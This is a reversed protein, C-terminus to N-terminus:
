FHEAPLASVPSADTDYTAEAGTGEGQAGESVIPFVHVSLAVNGVREAGLSKQLASQVKDSLIKPISTGVLPLETFIVGIVTGDRYWGKIDTDRTSRALAHRIEDVSGTRDGPTLLTPSEVLM